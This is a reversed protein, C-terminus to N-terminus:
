LELDPENLKKSERVKSAVVQLLAGAAFIGAIADYVAVQDETSFVYGFGQLIVSVLLLIAAGTRGWLLSVTTTDQRYPMLEETLNEEGCGAFTQNTV